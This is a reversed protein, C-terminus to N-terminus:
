QNTADDHNNDDDNRLSGVPPGLCLCPPWTSPGFRDEPFQIGNKAFIEKQKFLDIHGSTLHTSIM